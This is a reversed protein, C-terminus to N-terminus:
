QYYGSINKSSDPQEDMMPEEDLADMVSRELYSMSYGCVCVCLNLESAFGKLGFIAALHLM